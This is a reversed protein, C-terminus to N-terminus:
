KYVIARKTLILPLIFDHHECLKHFISVTPQNRLKLIIEVTFLRSMAQFPWTVRSPVMFACFWQAFSFDSFSNGVFSQCIRKTSCVKVHCIKLPLYFSTHWNKLLSTQWIFIKWKKNPALKKEKKLASSTIVARKCFNHFDEQGLLRDYFIRASSELIGFSKKEKRYWFATMNWTIITGSPM